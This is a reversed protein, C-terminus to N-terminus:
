TVQGFSVISTFNNVETRYDTYAKKRGQYTGCYPCTGMFQGNEPVGSEPYQELDINKGCFLCLM